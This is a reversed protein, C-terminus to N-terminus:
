GKPVMAQLAKARAGAAQLIFQQDSGGLIMRAGLRMYRTATEEDYVGGMGLAKGHRRCAEAVQRYAEEVRPHAIEGPIGMESSLDSTGILLADVGPVAAIADANAVSEPTEVMLVLLLERDIAEQAERMEPPQFGFVAVPGGWSRHGRPPFRLKTAIEKAQEPTDVHPIVIGQAANDLARTAEDLADFCVRVLPTVGTPLAALCLQTAEQMSFAGHECDIFLWDYGAAKALMPTAVSRLHQVGFGLALEGAKLKALTKNPFIAM